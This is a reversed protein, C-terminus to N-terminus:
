PGARPSNRPGGHALFPGMHVAAAAAAVAAAAVWEPGINPSMHGLIPIM